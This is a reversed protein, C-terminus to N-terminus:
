KSRFKDPSLGVERGFQRIFHSSSKYGCHEAINCVSLSSNLLLKKALAIRASIVDNVYSVAFYRKYLHQFHSRSLYISKCVEDVTRSKEPSLYIEKRIALLNLYNNGIGGEYAQELENKIRYIFATVLNDLINEKYKSNAYNLELTIDKLINSIHYPSSVKITVGMPIGQLLLEEAKSETNFHIFDHCFERGSEPFYSQIKYKDFIICDGEDAGTYSGNVIVFSPSKFLVFLYDGRGNPRHLKFDKSQVNDVDALTVIM